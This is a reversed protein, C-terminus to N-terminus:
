ESWEKEEELNMGVISEMRDYYAAIIDDLEANPNSITEGTVTSVLKTMKANVMALDYLKKKVEEKNLEGNPNEVLSKWFNEYTEDIDKQLNSM